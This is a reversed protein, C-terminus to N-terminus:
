PKVSKLNKFAEVTSLLGWGFLAISLIGLVVSTVTLAIIVARLKQSGGSVFPEEWNKSRTSIYWACGYNVLYGIGLSAVAAGAGFAFILLAKPFAIVALEFLRESKINGLFSLVAVIAGGNILTAAKLFDTGTKIAAENASAFEQDEQEHARLALENRSQNM